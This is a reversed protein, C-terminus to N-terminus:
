RLLARELYGNIGDIRPPLSEPDVPWISDDAIGFTRERISSDDITLLTLAKYPAADSGVLPRPGQGLAGTSFQLLEGRRMAAVNEEPHFDDGDFFPLGLAGSLLKGVLTKGSGSVGMIVLVKTTKPM